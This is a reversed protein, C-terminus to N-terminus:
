VKRQKIQRSTVLSVSHQSCGSIVKGEPNFKFTECVMKRGVSKYYIVLTDVGVFLDLLEFQLPPEAKIAPLWYPTVQDKGNLVGSKVGMREIIYPSTMEFDNDYLVFIRELDHSNFAAIWENAFAMAWNKEIM